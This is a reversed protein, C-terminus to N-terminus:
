AYAEGTPRGRAILLEILQDTPATLLATVLLVGPEAIDAEAVPVPADAPLRGLYGYQHAQHLLATRAQQAHQESTASPPPKLPWWCLGAAVLEVDFPTVQRHLNRAREAGLAFGLSMVDEFTEDGVLRPSIGQEFL